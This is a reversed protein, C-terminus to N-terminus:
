LITHYQAKTAGPLRSFLIRLNKVRGQVVGEGLWFDWSCACVYVCVCKEKHGFGMVYSFSSSEKNKM